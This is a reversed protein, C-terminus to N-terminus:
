GPKSWWARYLDAFYINGFYHAALIFGFAVVSRRVFTRDLRRAFAAGWFGGLVAAVTMPLAHPWSVQGGVVFVIAAILNIASGFLAKLANMSHFDEVGIMALAALMLIGIGAGFYGGYVSVGFQFLIVAAIARRSPQEHPRGVGTWRAIWPQFALLATATLIRWPVLLKFWRAPLVILLCAGLIGGLFSPM